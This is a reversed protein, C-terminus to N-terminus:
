LQRAEQELQDLDRALAVLQDDTTPFPGFLIRRVQGTDRGTRTAVAASLALEDDAQGFSRGLRQRAGARLSRAARDYANLRYYLRGHGEVTEAARVRVPLQESIIPGLRRGRWIGVVVLALFAQVVGIQWWPPLLRPQSDPAAEADGGETAMLWVLKPQSGFVALALAANGELGLERNSIGGALLQLQRGNPATFGAYAYGGDVTPYCSFDAPGTPQYGARPDGFQVSGARVAADVGCDPGFTGSAPTTGQARVEFARLAITNPRLLVTRDTGGALLQAAQDVTLRDANAVVVTSGPGSERVAVTLRDTTILEVGADTLLQGLAGAGTPTPSQPDDAQRRGASGLVVLMAATVIAAVLLAGILMRVGRRHLFAGRRRRASVEPGATM